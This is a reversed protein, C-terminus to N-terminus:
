MKEQLIGYYFYCLFIGLSYLLLKKNDAMGISTGKESERYINKKEPIHLVVDMLVIEEVLDQHLLTFIFQSQIFWVGAVTIPERSVHTSM